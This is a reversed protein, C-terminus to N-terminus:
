TGRVERRRRPKPRPRPQQRERSRKVWEPNELYWTLTKRIGTELTEQPQWGLQKRLKSSDLHLQQPYDDLGGKYTILNLYSTAKPKMEDLLQCLSRIVKLNSHLCDSSINYTEGSQGHLLVQLLARVHDEVYLWDQQAEGELLLPKELLADIMLRPLLQNAAQRPGYTRSAHTILIPLNYSKQWAKILQDATAKSASYPSDPDFPAAESVQMDPRSPSGFVEDTSLHQFRFDLQKQTSLEQWYLRTAELLTYTGLLNTKICPSPNQLTGPSLNEAACNIVADPQFNYLVRALTEQDCIDGKVQRLNKQHRLHYLSLPNAVETLKDYSLLQHDTTKLLLHILASGIFGSGGTILLKM